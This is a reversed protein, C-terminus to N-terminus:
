SDGYGSELDKFLVSTSIREQPDIIFEQGSHSYSKKEVLSYHPSALFLKEYHMKYSFVGNFHHYPRRSPLVSDFDTIILFGKNKLVRDAESVCKLLLSRDVLYLCFGFIVIDFFNDEFCLQDATGINLKLKPHNKLGEQIASDSQDIGYGKMNKVIKALKNGKSCGIELVKGHLNNTYREIVRVDVEYQNTSNKNRLFWNNGETELFVEKQKM